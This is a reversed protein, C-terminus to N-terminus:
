VEDKKVKDCKTTIIVFPLGEDQLFRLMNVDLAQPERRIDVLLVALRLSGRNQLYERYM